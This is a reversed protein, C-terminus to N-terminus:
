KRTKPKENWLIAAMGASTLSLVALTYFVPNWDGGSRDLILGVGFGAVLAAGLNGMAMIFGATM